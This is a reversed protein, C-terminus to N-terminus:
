VLRGKDQRRWFLFTFLALSLSIVSYSFFNLLGNSKDFISQFYIVAVIYVAIAPMILKYQLDIWYYRQSLYHQGTLTILQACLVGIAAGIAGLLPILFYCLIVNVVASFGIVYM